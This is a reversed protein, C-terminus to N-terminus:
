MNRAVIDRGRCTHGCPTARFRKNCRRPNRCTAIHSMFHPFSCPRGCTPCIFMHVRAIRDNPYSRRYYSM